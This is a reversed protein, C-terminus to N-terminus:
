QDDEMPEAALAVNLAAWLDQGRGTKVVPYFTSHLRQKGKPVHTTETVYGDQGGPAGSPSTLFRYGRQEWATKHGADVRRVVDEPVELHVWGRLEVVVVQDGERHADVKHGQLMWQDLQDGSEQSGTVYHPFRDGYFEDYSTPREKLWLDVHALADRANPHEGYGVLETARKVRFVRLGHGSRFGHLTAGKRLARHLNTLKM